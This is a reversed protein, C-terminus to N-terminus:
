ESSGSQSADGGLSSNELIKNFNGDFEIKCLSSLPILCFRDEHTRVELLSIDPMVRHSVTNIEESKGTVYTVKMVYFDPIDPNEKPIFPRM